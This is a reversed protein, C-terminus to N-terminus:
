VIEVEKLKSGDVENKQCDYEKKRKMIALFENHDIIGDTVSKSVLM